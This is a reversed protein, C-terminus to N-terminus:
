VYKGSLDHQLEISRETVSTTTDVLIMELRLTRAMSISDISDICYPHRIAIRANDVMSGVSPTILVFFTFATHTFHIAQSGAPARNIDM